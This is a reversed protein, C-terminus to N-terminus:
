IKLLKARRLYLDCMETVQSHRAVPQVRGIRVRQCRSTHFDLIWHCITTRLGMNNLKGILKMPTITNFTSNFDVFLMRIYSGKKNELQTFISHLDTSISDKTSWKTWGKLSPHFSTWSTLPLWSFCNSSRNLVSGCLWFTQPDGQVSGSCLSPEAYEHFVEPDQLLLSHSHTYTYAHTLKPPPGDSWAVHSLLGWPAPQSAQSSHHNRACIFPDKLCNAPHCLDTVMAFAQGRPTRM